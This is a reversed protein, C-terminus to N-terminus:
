LFNGSSTDCADLVPAMREHAAANRMPMRKRVSSEEYREPTTVVEKSMSVLAACSMSTNRFIVVGWTAHWNRLISADFTSPVRRVLMDLLM